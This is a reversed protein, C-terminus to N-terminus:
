FVKKVIRTKLDAIEACIRGVRNIVGVESVRNGLRLRFFPQHRFRRSPAPMPLAIVAFLTGFQERRPKNNLDRQRFVRAFV